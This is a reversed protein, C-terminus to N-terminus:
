IEAHGIARQTRAYAILDAFNAVPAKPSAVMCVRSRWLVLRQSRVAIAYATKIMVGSGKTRGRKPDDNPAQKRLPRIKGLREASATIHTVFGVM